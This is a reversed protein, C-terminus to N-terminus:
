NEYINQRWSINLSLDKLRRVLVSAVVPNMPGIELIGDKTQRIIEKATWPFKADGLAEEVQTRMDKTDIGEIKLHYSIVSGSTNVLPVTPEGIFPEEVAALISPEEIPQDLAEFSQDVISEEIDTSAIEGIQESSIEAIPDEFLIPDEVVVPEESESADHIEQRIISADQIEVNGDLDFVLVSHCHSCSVVGFDQDLSQGCQPCTTAM